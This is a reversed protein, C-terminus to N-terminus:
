VTQSLSSSASFQKNSPSSLRVIRWCLKFAADDRAWVMKVRWTSLRELTSDASLTRKELSWRTSRAPLSIVLFVPESPWTRTSDQKMLLDRLKRSCTTRARLLLFRPCIGYLCALNVLKKLSEIPPFQLVTIIALIQGSARWKLSVAEVRLNAERIIFIVLSAVTLVM